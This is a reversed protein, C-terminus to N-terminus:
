KETSRRIAAFILNLEKAEQWITRADERLEPVVAAMMRLWHKTEKIEKLCITIKHKFDKRSEADDAECYNAGVSTAARVLQDILSSTLPTIPVRKVFGIVAEGFCATREGLDKRPLVGSTKTMSDNTM